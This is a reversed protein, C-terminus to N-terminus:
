VGSHDHGVCDTAGVRVEKGAVNVTRVGGSSKACGSSGCSVEELEARIVDTVHRDRDRGLQWKQEDSKFFLLHCERRYIVLLLHCARRYVVLLFRQLLLRDTFPMQAVHVRSWRQRNYIPDLAHPAHPSNCSRSFEPESSDSSEVNLNFPTLTYKQSSHYTGTISSWTFLVFNFRHRTHHKRAVLSPM